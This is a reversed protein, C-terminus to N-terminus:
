KRERYGKSVRVSMSLAFLSIAFLVLTGSEPVPVSASANFTGTADARASSITSSTVGFGPTWDSFSLAFGRPINLKAPNFVDSTGSFLDPPQSANLTPNSGGASGTVEDSFNVTLLNVLGNISHFSIMGAFNQEIVENLQNAPGSNFAIFSLLYIGNTQGNCSSILCFSPDFVVSVPIDTTQISTFGGVQTIVFPHNFTVQNFQLITSASARASPIFSILSILSLHILSKKIM